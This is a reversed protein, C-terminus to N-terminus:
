NEGSWVAWAPSDPGRWLLRFGAGRGKMFPPMTANTKIAKSADESVALYCCEHGWNVKPELDIFVIFANWPVTFRADGLQIKTGASVLSDDLYVIASSLKKNDLTNRVKELIRPEIEM